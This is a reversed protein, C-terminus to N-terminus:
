AALDFLQLQENRPDVNIEPVTQSRLPTATAYQMSARVFRKMPPVSADAHAWKVVQACAWTTSPAPV